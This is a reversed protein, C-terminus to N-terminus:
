LLYLCQRPCLNSDQWPWQPVATRYLMKKKVDGSSLPQNINLKTKLSCYNLICYKQSDHLCKQQTIM